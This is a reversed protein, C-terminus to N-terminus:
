QVTDTAADPVATASAEQELRSILEDLTSFQTGRGTLTQGLIVATDPVNTNWCRTGLASKGNDTLAFSNDGSNATQFLPNPRETYGLATLRHRQDDSVVIPADATVTLPMSLKTM